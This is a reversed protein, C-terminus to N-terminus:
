NRQEDRIVNGVSQERWSRCCPRDGHGGGLFIALPKDGPELQTATGPHAMGPQDQLPEPFNQPANLTMSRNRSLANVITVSNM